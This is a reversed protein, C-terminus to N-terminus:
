TVRRVVVQAEEPSPGSQATNLADQMATLLSSLVEYTGKLEVEVAPQALIHEGTDKIRQTVSLVYRDPKVRTVLVTLPRRDLDEHFTLGAIMRTIPTHSM